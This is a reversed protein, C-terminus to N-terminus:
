APRIDGWTATFEFRVSPRVIAWAPALSPRPPLTTRHGAGTVGGLEQIRGYIATPGVQGEWSDPGTPAARRVTVSDRLHGSIRWPPTGPASGTPTNPPHWGLSLLTKQQLAVSNLAKDLQQPTDQRAQEVMGLLATLVQPVGDLHASVDAM